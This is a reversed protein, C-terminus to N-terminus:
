LGEGNSSPASSRGRESLEGAQEKGDFIPKRRGVKVEGCSDAMEVLAGGL